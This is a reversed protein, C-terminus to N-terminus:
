FWIGDHSCVNQIGRVIVQLQMCGPLTVPGVPADYRMVPQDCSKLLASGNWQAIGGQGLVESM